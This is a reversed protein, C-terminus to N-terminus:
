LQKKKRRNSDKDRQLWTFGPVPRGRMYGSESPLDNNELKRGGGM